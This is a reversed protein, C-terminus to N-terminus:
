NSKWTSNEVQIEKSLATEQKKKKKFTLILEDIWCGSVGRCMEPKWRGEFTIESVPWARWANKQEMDSRWLNDLELSGFKDQSISCYTWGQRVQVNYIM